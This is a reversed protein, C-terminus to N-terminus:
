GRVVVVSDAAPMWRRATGSGDAPMTWTTEGAKYLVHQNDLWEIQDDLPRTEALATEKGTALDLVHFRWIPPNHGVAKKYAIRTEDPSLSPCEVNEHIVHGTRSKISAKVLYTHGGTAMTAYFTDGDRSFTVGWFNRDRATAPKGDLTITFDKELDALWRGKRLDIITAATSFQGVDAYSHGTVFSTVAGWRGDPSVRARSPVGALRVSGTDSLTSDLIKASFGTLTPPSLCLGRGGALDVRDCKQVALLREGPKGRDLPALALRGYKSGDTRDLSRFLVFPRKAALLRAVTPRAVAAAQESQREDEQARLAATVVAFGAVGLCLVCLLTFGLARRSV